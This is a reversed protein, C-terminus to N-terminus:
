FVDNRWKGFDDSYKYRYIEEIKDVFSGKRDLNDSAMISFLVVYSYPWKGISENFDLKLKIEQNSNNELDTYRYSLLDAIIVRAYIMLALLIVIATIVIGFLKVDFLKGMTLSLLGGVLAVTREDNTLSNITKERSKKIRREIGYDDVDLEPDSSGRLTNEFIQLIDDRSEMASEVDFMGNVLSRIKNEVALIYNVKPIINLITDLFLALIYLCVSMLAIVGTLSRSVINM